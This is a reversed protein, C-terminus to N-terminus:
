LTESATSGVASARDFRAVVSDIQDTTRHPEYVALRFSARVVARLDDLSSLEGAAWAQTLLNGIGSAEEPGAVVVRGTVDATTQCLLANASGGGVLHLVGVRQGSLSEALDITRRYSLAASDIVCRVLDARDAPPRQGSRVCFDVIRAPMDGVPLFSPDDPDVLAAFAPAAAAAAVLDAYSISDGWYRRCAQLLWLGTGNRLFRFSGDLGAENTFGATRAEASTIAAPVELGVLSWTGCVIYGVPGDTAPVVAVASATDHGAVTVVLPAHRGRNTPGGARIPGAPGVGPQERLTDLPTGPAVVPHDFLRGPLGLTAILDTAWQGSHLDLLQTTSAITRETVPVGSLWRLFLDPLLSVRAAAALAQEGRMALLQSAANIPQSLVGTRRYIAQEGVLDAIVAPMGASRVDRHHRPDALLGGDSDLLAFDNGWGDVSVSTAPGGLTMHARDIGALAEQYLGVVDWYLGEGRVVARNAFRHVVEVDLRVGDFRGALVRGSEGGLDIAVYASV